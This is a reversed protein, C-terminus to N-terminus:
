GGGTEWAARGFFRHRKAAAPVTDGARAPTSLLLRNVYPDLGPRPEAAVPRYLLAFVPLLSYQVQLILRPRALPVAGRHIGYTDAIFATGRPGTITWVADRGYRREIEAADYPRARLRGATRHSGAVFVHPGTDEDVDTLYIFLKLFRWDDPDRHFLQTDEAGARTPFSWRIGLSSLTATCGLYRAALRLVAPHNVVDLVAPCDLVRELPYAATRTGAPLRDLPVQGGGPGIVPADRLHAVISEVLPPPLVGDLGTCGDRHLADLAREVGPDADPRAADRPDRPHATEVAAAIARSVVRRVGPRTAFRQGYYLAARVPRFGPGPTLRAYDHM